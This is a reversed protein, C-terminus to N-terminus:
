LLGFLLLFGSSIETFLSQRSLKQYFTYFEHRLEKDSRLKKYLQQQQLPHLEM